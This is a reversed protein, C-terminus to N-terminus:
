ETNLTRARHGTGQMKYQPQNPSPLLTSYKTRFVPYPTFHSLYSRSFLSDLDLSEISIAMLM